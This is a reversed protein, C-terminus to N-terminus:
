SHILDSNRFAGPGILSVISSLVTVEPGEAKRCISYSLCCRPNEINQQLWNASIFGSNLEFGEGRQPSRGHPVEFPPSRSIAPENSKCHTVPPPCRPTGRYWWGLWRYRQRHKIRKSGYQIVRIKTAEQTPRRNSRICPLHVAGGLLSRCQPHGGTRCRVAGPDASPAGAVGRRDPGM